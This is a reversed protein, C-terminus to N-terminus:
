AEEYMEINALLEMARAVGGVRKVASYFERVKSQDTRAPTAGQATTNATAPTAVGVKTAGQSTGGKSRLVSKRTSAYQATINLGAATAEAEIQSPTLHLRDRIFASKAGYEVGKDRKPAAKKKANAKKVTTKKPAEKKGASKKSKPKAGGKQPATKKGIAAKKTSASAATTAKSEEPM